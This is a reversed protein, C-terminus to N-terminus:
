QDMMVFDDDPVLEEYFLDTAEDAFNLDTANAATASAATDPPLQSFYGDIARTVAAPAPTPNAASAPPSRDGSPAPPAVAPLAM